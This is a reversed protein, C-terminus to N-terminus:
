SAGGGIRELMERVAGEVGLFLARGVLSHGINLEEVEPLEAVPRVNDPDLGHGANVRLGRAHAEVAGRRLRELEEARRGGGANAYSGTHLEVFEAGLEASAEIQGPDPDIFLSVLIGREQFRPIAERLRARESLVDLGGETTIEQRNEPVLCLEDAGSELALGVM